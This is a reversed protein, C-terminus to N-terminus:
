LRGEARGAQLRSGRLRVAARGRHAARGGGLAQAARQALKARAVNGRQLWGGVRQAGREAQRGCRDGDERLLRPGRPARTAPPPIKPIPLAFAQLGAGTNL